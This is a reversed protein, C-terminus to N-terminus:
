KHTRRKLWEVIALDEAGAVIEGGYAWGRRRMANRRLGAAEFGIWIAFLVYLWFAVNGGTVMALGTIVVLALGYALLEWWMGHVAVYLPPLLAAFWSFRDGVAAPAIEDEREYMSFTTM